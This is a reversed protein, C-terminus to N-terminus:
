NRVPPQGNRVFHDFADELGGNDGDSPWNREWPKVESPLILLTMTQRYQDSIIRMERLVMDKPENSFWIRANVETGLRDVSTDKCLATACQDPLRRRQGNLKKNLAISLWKGSQSGRAWRVIGKYSMVLVARKPTFELWKLTAATLSTGYREACGGLVDLDITTSRIQAEFDPRPMLLHAAFENAQNELQREPSDWHLTDVENCNFQGHLHRHMLYHGLEHALTFRIRGDSPIGTNYVIAWDGKGSQNEALNFLAGEFESDMAEGRISIPEGTQFTQPIEQILLEMNVPFRDGGHIGHFVDLMDNLRKACPLPRNPIGIM